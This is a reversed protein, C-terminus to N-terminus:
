ERDDIYGDHREREQGEDAGVQRGGASDGGGWLSKYLDQRRQLEGEAWALVEDAVRKKAQAQGPVGSVFGLDHPIRGGNKFVPRGCFLDGGAPDPEVRYIPSDIGLRNAVRAVREYVSPEKSLSTTTTGPPISTIEPLPSTTPPAALTPAPDRKPRSSKKEPSPPLPRKYLVSPPTQALFDLAQKAAYQKAN